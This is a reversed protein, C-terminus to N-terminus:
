APFSSKASYGFDAVLPHGNITHTIPAALLVLYRAIDTASHVPYDAQDFGEQGLGLAARSMPTDVISPCVCNVRIGEDQLEVSLARTFTLMAGKSTSYVLDGLAFVIASDSAVFTVSPHPRGRLLSLAHKIVLWQGRVNVAMMRDWEDVTIDEISRGFLTSTGACSIVHDLQGFHGGIRNVAVEISAEDALDCSVALVRDSRDAALLEDAVQALLQEDRDLLAVRSGEALLIEATARGIGGAAGTVVAVADTLQLDM